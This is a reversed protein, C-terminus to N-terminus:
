VFEAQSDDREIMQGVLLSTSAVLLVMILMNGPSTLTYLLLSETSSFSCWYGISNRLVNHGEPIGGCVYCSFFCLMMLSNRLRSGTFPWQLPVRYTM